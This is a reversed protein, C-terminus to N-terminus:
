HRITKRKTKAFVAGVIESAGMSALVQACERLTSGTTAVDDILLVRVGSLDTNKAASFAGKVNIRRENEHLSKQPLTQKTKKLLKCFPKDAQESLERAILESQNYDRRRKDLRHLPVATIVDFYESLGSEILRQLIFHAMMAAACGNNNEKLEYVAKEVFDDYEAVATLASLPAIEDEIDPPPPIKASCDSCVYSDHPIEANCFPCRNPYVASILMRKFNYFSM